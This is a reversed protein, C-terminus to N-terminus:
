VLQCPVGAGRISVQYGSILEPVNVPWLWPGHFMAVFLWYREYPPSNVITFLLRWCPRTRNATLSIAGFLCGGRIM